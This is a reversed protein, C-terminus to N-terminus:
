KGLKKGLSRDTALTNIGQVILIRDFSQEALIESLAPTDYRPDLLTLDFHLALFPALSNAFSDKILLLRPRSPEGDTHSAEISLLATNGGLFIRYKDKKSLTSFDYFGQRSEGTQLDTREFQEDQAYRYLVIRDEQEAIGGVASDATGRFDESVVQVEFFSEEYPVVGLLPALKVYTWYAGSTTWHHDTRYFVQEKEAKNEFLEVPSLDAVNADQIWTYIERDPTYHSPLADTMVDVCRPVLLCTLPLDAKASFNQLAQLNEKAVSQNEIENKFILYGNKGFLVGNNEQKGLAREAGAKIQCFSTRFPFQDSCVTSLHSFFSGDTLTSLNPAKWQALARNESESFNKSPSFILLISFFILFLFFFLSFILSIKSHFHTPSHM